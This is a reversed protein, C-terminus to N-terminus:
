ARVVATQAGAFKKTLVLAAAGRAWIDDRAMHWDIPTSDRLVDIVTERFADMFPRAILDAARMGDGTVIVKEPMLINAANAAARGLATGADEFLARLDARGGDALRTVEEIAAQVAAANDLAPLGPVLPAARAAIAYDAAYAEVCGHKGCRCPRGGAEHLVHGFEASMGGRGRYLEGEVVLGMGVGHELTVVMFTAHGRGRGFWKEALAVLNADNDGHTPIGLRTEIERPLSRKDDKFIPSWHAVGSAPDIFGPMGIGIGAVSALPRRARSALGAVADAVMAGVRPVDLAGAPLPVRETLILDGKMDALTVTAMHMALKVGAVVGAEAAVDLLLRPRGRGVPALRREVLLGEAILASTTESVTAPSFGTVDALETRAIPGREILAEALALRTAGRAPPAPLSRLPASGTLSM